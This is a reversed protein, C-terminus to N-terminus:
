VGFTAIGMSILMVLASNIKIQNIRGMFESLPATVVVSWKPAEIPAYGILQDGNSTFYVTWRQEGRKLDEIAM